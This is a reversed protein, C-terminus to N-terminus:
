RNGIADPLQGMTGNEIKLGLESSPPGLSNAIYRGMSYGAQEEATRYPTGEVSTGKLPWVKYYAAAGSM